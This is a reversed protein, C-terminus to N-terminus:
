TTTREKNNPLPIGVERMLGRRVLVSLHVGEAKATQVVLQKLRHPIWAGIQAGFSNGAGIWAGAEERTVDAASITPENM